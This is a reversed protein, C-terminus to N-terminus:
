VNKDIYTTLATNLSEQAVYVVSVEKLVHYLVEIKMITM